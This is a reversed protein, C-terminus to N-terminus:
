TTELNVDNDNVKRLFNKNKLQKCTHIHGFGFQIQLEWKSLSFLWIPYVLTSCKWECVLLINFFQKPDNIEMLITVLRRFCFYCDYGLKSENCIGYWSYVECSVYRIRSQTMNLEHNSVGFFVTFKTDELDEIKRQTNHISYRKCQMGYMFLACICM